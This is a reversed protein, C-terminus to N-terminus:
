YCISMCTQSPKVKTLCLPTKRSHVGSTRFHVTATGVWAVGWYAAPTGEDFPVLAPWSLQCSALATGLASVLM